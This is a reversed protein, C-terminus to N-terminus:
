TQNAQAVTRSYARPGSLDGTGILEGANAGTEIVRKALEPRPRSGRRGSSKTFNISVPRAVSKGHRVDTSKWKKGQDNVGEFAPAKDGVKLEGGGALAVAGLLAFLAVTAGFFRALQKM